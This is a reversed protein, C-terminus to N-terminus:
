HIQFSIESYMMHADCSTITSYLSPHYLDSNLVIYREDRAIKPLIWSDIYWRDVILILFYFGILFDINDEKNKVIAFIHLIFWNDIYSLLVSDFFWIKKM